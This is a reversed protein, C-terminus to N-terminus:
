LLQKPADMRKHLVRIILIGGDKQTYFIVHSQHPFRRYGARIDDISVGMASNKALGDMCASLSRYYEETQALGFDTLSRDLICEIDHAAAESLKYM